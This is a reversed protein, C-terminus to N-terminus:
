ESLTKYIFYGTIMVTLVIFINLFINLKLLSNFILLVFISLLIGATKKNLNSSAPSIKLHDGLIYIGFIIVFIVFVMKTFGIHATIIGPLVGEVILAMFFFLLSIFLVDYLLKYAITMQNTKIRNLPNEM